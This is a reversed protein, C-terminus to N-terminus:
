RVALLVMIKASLLHLLALWPTEVQSSPIIRRRVELQPVLSTRRRTQNVLLDPAKRPRDVKVIVAPHQAVKQLHIQIQKRQSLVLVRNREKLRQGISLFCFCCLRCSSVDLLPLLLEDVASPPYALRSGVELLRDELEKEKTAM